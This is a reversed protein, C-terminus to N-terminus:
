SQDEKPESPPAPAGPQPTDPLEPLQPLLSDILDADAGQENKAAPPPEPLRAPNEEPNEVSPRSLNLMLEALRGQEAALELLEQETEPTIGGANRQAEIEATRRNIEEQMLRLLKLEALVTADAPPMGSPTQGGGGGSGDQEAGPEPEEPALATVIQGLRALAVAQTDQTTMGFERRDIAASARMMERAAGRLGLQFAEASALQAGVAGTDVALQRQHRALDLLSNLQARDLGSRSEQALGDLRQTEDIMRQQRLILGRIEQELRILQEEVLEQEAQALEQALQEAAKKLTELSEEGKAAAQKAEGDAASSAAEQAQAAGRTLSEAPADARMRMLRRSLREIQEALERQQKSLRMLEEARKAPDPQNQAKRLEEALEAQRQELANLEDQAKQL